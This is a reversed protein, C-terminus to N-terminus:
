YYRFNVTSKDRCSGSNAIDVFVFAFLATATFMIRSILDDDFNVPGYLVNILCCNYDVTVVVRIFLILFWVLDICLDCDGVKSFKQSHVSERGERGVRKEERGGGEQLGM